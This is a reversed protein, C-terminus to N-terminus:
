YPRNPECTDEWLEVIQVGLAEREAESLQEVGRGVDCTHRKTLVHMIDTFQRRFDAPFQHDLLPALALAAMTMQERDRPRHRVAEAARKLRHCIGTKFSRSM